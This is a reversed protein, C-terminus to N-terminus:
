AEWIHAWIDGKRMGVAMVSTWTMVVEGGVKNFKGRRGKDDRGNIRRQRSYSNLLSYRM